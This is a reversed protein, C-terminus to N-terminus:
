WKDQLIKFQQSISVKHILNQVPSYTPTSSMLVFTIFDVSAGGELGNWFLISLPDWFKSFWEGKQFYEFQHSFIMSKKSLNCCFMHLQLQSQYFNM